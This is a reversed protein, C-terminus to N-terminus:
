VIGGGQLPRAHGARPRGMVAQKGYVGPGSIDPGQRWKIWGRFSCGKSHWGDGAQGGGLDFRAARRPLRVLRGFGLSFGGAFDHPIVDTGVEVKHKQHQGDHQREHM